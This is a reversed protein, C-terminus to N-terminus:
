KFDLHESVTKVDTYDLRKTVNVIEPKKRGEIKRKEPYSVVFGDNDADELRGLIKVGDLMVVDVPKGTLKRFQRLVKLPQGVGASSVMLSFDETATELEQEVARSVAICEEVAVRQDSDIYIEIENGARVKVEVVFLSEDPLHKEALAEIEKKDFM